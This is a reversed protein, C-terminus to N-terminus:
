FPLDDNIADHDAKPAIAKEIDGANEKEYKDSVQIFFYGKKGDKPERTWIAIEKEEGLNIYGKFDPHKDEKKYENRFVMGTNEKLDM